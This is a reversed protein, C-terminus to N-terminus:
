HNKWGFVDFDDFPNHEMRKKIGERTEGVEVFSILTELYEIEHLLVQVKKKKIKIEKTLEQFYEEDNIITKGM